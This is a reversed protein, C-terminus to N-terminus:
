SSSPPGGSILAALKKILPGVVNGKSPVKKFKFEWHGEKDRSFEVHSQLAFLAFTILLTGSVPDLGFRQAVPNRIMAGIPGSKDPEQALLLLAERAIEGASAPIDLPAVRLEECLARASEHAREEGTDTGRRHVRVVAALIRVAAEDDLASVALTLDHEAGAFDTM